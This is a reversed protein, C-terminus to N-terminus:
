AKKVVGLTIILEKQCRKSIKFSFAVLIAIFLSVGEYRLIFIHWWGCNLKILNWLGRSGLPTVCVSCYVTKINHTKPHAHVKYVKHVKYRQRREASLRPLWAIGAPKETVVTRCDPSPQCVQGPEGWMSRRNHSKTLLTWYTYFIVENRHKLRPRYWKIFDILMDINWRIRCFSASGQPDPDVVGPM